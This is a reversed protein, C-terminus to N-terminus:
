EGAEDRVSSGVDRIRGSYTINDDGNLDHVGNRMGHFPCPDSAM